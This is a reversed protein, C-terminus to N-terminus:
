QKLWNTNTSFGTTLLTESDQQTECHIIFSIAETFTFEHAQTSDAATFWHNEGTNSATFSM